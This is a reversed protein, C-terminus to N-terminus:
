RRTPVCGTLPTLLLAVGVPKKFTLIRNAGFPAMRLAGDVRVAEESFWRFFEAAYSVEGATVRSLRIPMAAMTAVEIPSTDKALARPVASGDPQRVLSSDVAVLTGGVEARIPLPYLLSSM